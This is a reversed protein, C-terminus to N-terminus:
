QILCCACTQENNSPVNETFSQTRSPDWHPVTHVTVREDFHVNSIKNNQIRAITKPNDPSSVCSGTSETLKSDNNASNVGATKCGLVFNNNNNNNNDNNNNNNN